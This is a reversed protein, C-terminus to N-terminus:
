NILLGTDVVYKNHLSFTCSHGAPGDGIYMNFYYLPPLFTSSAVSVYIKVSAIIIIIIIIM